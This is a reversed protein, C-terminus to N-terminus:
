EIALAAPELHGETEDWTGILYDVSVGLARALARATNTNMSTRKENELESITAYRIGAQRALERLSLGKQERAKRLREGVSM